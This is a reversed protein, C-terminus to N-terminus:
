RTGNAVPTRLRLLVAASACLAAGVAFAAVPSVFTWLVGAVISSGLDGVGNIANLVGFATGLRREEV